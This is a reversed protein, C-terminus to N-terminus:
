PHTRQNWDVDVKPQITNQNACIIKVMTSDGHRDWQNRPSSGMVSTCGGRLHHSIPSWSNSSDWIQNSSVPRTSTSTTSSLGGGLKLGGKVLGYAGM